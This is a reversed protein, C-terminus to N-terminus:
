KIHEERFENATLPGVNMKVQLISHGFITMKLIWDYIYFSDCENLVWITM